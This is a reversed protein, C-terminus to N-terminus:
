KQSTDEKEANGSRGSEEPNEKQEPNETTETKEKDEDIVNIKDIFTELASDKSLRTYNDLHHVELSGLGDSEAASTDKNKNIVQITSLTLKYNFDDIYKEIIDNAKEFRYFLLDEATKKEYRFRVRKEVSKEFKYEEPLGYNKRNEPQNDEDTKDEAKEGEINAAYEANIEIIYADGTKGLFRVFFPNGTKSESTFLTEYIERKKTNNRSEFLALFGYRKARRARKVSELYKFIRYSHLRPNSASASVFNNRSITRERYGLTLYLRAKANKSRIVMPALQDLIDRSDELYYDNIMFSYLRDLKEQSSYIKKYAKRFDAQLYAIYANFHLEYAEKLEPIKSDAFNTICVNLFDIFSKNEELKRETTTQDTFSYAPSIFFLALFFTGLALKM